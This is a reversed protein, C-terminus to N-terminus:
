EYGQPTKTHYETSQEFAYAVQYLLPESLRPGLIQFGIPLGSQSMGCPLSIAPTGIMCNPVTFYDGLYLAIPDDAFQGIKFPLTPTTPSVLVDVSKFAEEFEHRILSRVRTAKHYYADKHGASLVYNGILIRRKVENGFGDHRTKIYMDLLTEKDRNSIGYLSGDYRSLNSAAEAYSMIFYVSIGYRLYDLDITQVTAGMAELQKIAREFAAKVEPDVSDSYSEKIVGIRLGSPIKGTLTATFDPTLTQIMSSDYGDRGAILNMVLANDKVTRTIPCIQDNSSSFALIGYRSVRGYTPYMGVLNCFAAPQRVSGGTESGLAFPVLGAAVVAASGASSGGPTRTLDWPNRTPGYASFEGSSGMAFEDMNARGLVTVGAQQLRQLATASYTAKYGKLINSAATTLRGEHCINDKSACPIGHWSGNQNVAVTSEDFQEIVANLTANYKKIRAAYFQILEQPSFEGASLGDILSSLSAYSKM